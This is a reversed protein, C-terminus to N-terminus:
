ISNYFAIIRILDRIEDTKLKNDKIFSKLSNSKKSLLDLLEARKGNYFQVNGKNDLFYFNHKLRDRVLQPGGFNPTTTTEQVIEERALLSLPGEFLLEFLIRTKYGNNIEYPISYFRRRNEVTEDYIEALLITHSSFSYVKKASKVQLSNAEMDYKVLGKVTDKKATILFGNHWLQSPFRQANGETFGLFFILLFIFTSKKFGLKKLSKM